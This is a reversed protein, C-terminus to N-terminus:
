GGALAQLKTVTAWNRTTAADRLLRAIEPTLRSAMLGEPCWVYAARSGVALSEPAWEQRTLLELKSRDAPQLLFTVFLRTPDTAVDGLPSEACAQALEDATLVLVRAPVGIDNALVGEIRAAAEAASRAKARFVVNGSNLLTRVDRYGIGALRERLEAMAVRKAKGVNIGRILAVYTESM